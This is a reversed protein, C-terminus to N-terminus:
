FSLGAYDVFGHPIKAMEMRPNYIEGYKKFVSNRFFLARFLALLLECPHRLSAEFFIKGQLVFALRAYFPPADDLNDKEFTSWQISQRCSRSNQSPFDCM